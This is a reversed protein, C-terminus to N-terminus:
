WNQLLTSSLAEFLVKEPARSCEAMAALLRCARGVSEAPSLSNERAQAAFIAAGQPALGRKIDIFFDDYSISCIGALKVFPPITAPCEKRCMDQIDPAAFLSVASMWPVDAGRTLQIADFFSTSFVTLLLDCALIADEVTGERWIVFPEPLNFNEMSERPHPRYLCSLGSQLLLSRACASLTKSYGDLHHLPQGFFIALREGSKIPVRARAANRRVPINIDSYHAHAPSGIALVPRQSQKATLECAMKDLVFYVDPEKCSPSNLYGWYDQMAAVPATSLICAAEDVGFEGQPSIGTLVAEPAFDTIIPSLSEIIHRCSEDDAADAVDLALNCHPLRSGSCVAGALEGQTVLLVIHGAISAAEAVPLIHRM